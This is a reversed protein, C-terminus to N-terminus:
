DLRVRFGLLKTGGRRRWEKQKKWRTTGGSGDGGLWIAATMWKGFGRATVRRGEIWGAM